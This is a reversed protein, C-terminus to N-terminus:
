CRLCLTMLLMNVSTVFATLLFTMKEYIEICSSKKKGGSSDGRNTLLSFALILGLLWTWRKHLGCDLVFEGAVYHNSCSITAKYIELGNWVANTGAKVHMAANVHLSPSLPCGIGLVFFSCFAKEAIASYFHSRGCRERQVMIPFANPLTLSFASYLMEAHLNHM